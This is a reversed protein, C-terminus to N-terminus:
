FKRLAEGLFRHLQQVLGFGILLNVALVGLLWFLLRVFVHGLLYYQRHVVLLGGGNAGEDGQL